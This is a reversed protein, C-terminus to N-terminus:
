PSPSGNRVRDVFIATILVSGSVIGTWFPSIGALTLGNSLVGLFLVGLLTGLLTGRGGMFSTGGLLVAAGAMLEIGIGANPSASTLRSADVVAALGALGGAIGFVSVRILSVNIGALRAAEPNGGTAYVMRGYGTYRLVLVGLLLVVGAIVVTVPLQGGIRHSGVDILFTQDFLSQSQGGTRVQAIGRYLSATGITVVLFSLGVWGILLGNVLFGLAFAASIALAVAVPAPVGAGVLEWLVVATLAMTGGISLDIGGCLLVFTLGVAVILLVASTDLVNLLNSSSLFSDQTISLLVLLGVLVTLVGAYSNLARFARSRVGEAPLLTDISAGHGGLGPPRPAPAGPIGEGSGTELQSTM